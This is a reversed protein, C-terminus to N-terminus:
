HFKQNQFSPKDLLVSLLFPACQSCPSFHIFPSKPSRCSCHSTNYTNRHSPFTPSCPSLAPHHAQSFCKNTICHSGNANCLLHVPNSPSCTPPLSFELRLQWKYLKIDGSTLDSRVGLQSRGQGVKGCSVKEVFVLCTCFTSSPHNWTGTCGCAECAKCLTTLMWWKSQPQLSKSAVLEKVM